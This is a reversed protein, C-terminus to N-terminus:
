RELLLGAPLQEGFLADKESISLSREEYLAESLSSEIGRDKLWGCVSDVVEPSLNLERHETKRALEVLIPAVKHPDLSTERILRQIWDAAVDRPLVNAVSGYLLRRAGLRALAWSDCALAKESILRQVLAEGMRRKSAQDVRELSAFARIQESYAYDDSKGKKLGQGKPCLLSMLENALQQQQGTSLGGAFRRCAIWKQLSVELSHRGKDALFIKWLEKMRFDDLPYGFGPRLVFGVLNWWRAEHQPSVTRHSAEALLPDWLGRLVSLSWQSKPTELCRELKEMIEKPKIPRSGGFSDRIVERAPQLLSLDWTQDHRAEERSALSHDEGSCTRCQFELLWRHDTNVSELWVELSGVPTLTVKLHAALRESRANVGKGYRLVTCIPSLATMEEPLIPVLQGQQDDLRTHSALLTFSVPRNAQVWFFEEPSYTSGEESGRPLLTLAKRSFGEGEKEKVDVSLYLSRATGGRIRVGLGRRVKGFYAAGYAVALDLSDSELLSPVKGFWAGLSSFIAEQFAKPKMAGGNFLLYDLKVSGAGKLFSALQKTISPESEYPLGSSLRLGSPRCLRCAEEFAYHGFFGSLLFARVEEVSLECSVAGRVVSSGAGPLTVRYTKQTGNLLTEKAKRAESRLQLWQILTLEGSLGAEQQLKEELKHALAEDMNDGGLLLHRGVARRQFTRKREEDQRVEILCFDTTGGGVDCVLIVDGEQFGDQAGEHRGLWSYFAAQPEELLTLRQYGAARAAEVTLTRAVEDFSAPVTIVVEQQDFAREEGGMQYDWAEKIHLLYRQTAEVPSVRRSEDFCELPLIPERRNSAPNCLWSKASHVLRTPVKVGEMHAYWGVAYDRHAADRSHLWPLRPSERVAEDMLYCCSPLIPNSVIGQIAQQVLPFSRVALAPNVEVNTDVYSVCCHTTGLDIGILYRSSSDM